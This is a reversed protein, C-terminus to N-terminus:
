WLCLMVMKCGEANDHSM